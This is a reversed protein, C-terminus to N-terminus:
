SGEYFYKDMINKLKNINSEAIKQNKIDTWESYWPYSKSYAIYQEEANIRLVILDHFGKVIGTVFIYDSWEKRILSLILVLPITRFM